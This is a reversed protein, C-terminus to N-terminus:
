RKEEREIKEKVAERIFEQCSYGMQEILEKTGPFLRCNIREWKSDYKAIARKQADTAM